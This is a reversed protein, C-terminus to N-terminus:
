AITSFMSTIQLLIRLEIPQLTSLDADDKIELRSLGINTIVNPKQQIGIYTLKYNDFNTSIANTIASAQNDDANLYKCIQQIQQTANPIHDLQLFATTSANTVRLHSIPFMEIFERMKAQVPSPLSGIHENIEVSEHIFSVTGSVLESTEQNFEYYIGNEPIEGEILPLCPVENICPVGKRYHVNSDTHLTPYSTVIEDSHICEYSTFSLNPYCCITVNDNHCFEAMDFRGQEM